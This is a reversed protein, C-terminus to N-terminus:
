PILANIHEISQQSYKRLAELHSGQYKWFEKRCSADVNEYVTKAGSIPIGDEESHIFLIPINKIDKIGEKASYPSVVIQRIADHHEAPSTHLAIDTFSAITGDLVLASVKANNEKTLQVAIQTGISAGYVILPKEKVDDRVLLSDLLAQADVAINLHTPRGHIKWIRSLRAYM